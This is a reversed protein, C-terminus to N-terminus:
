AVVSAPPAAPAGALAATQPSNTAPVTTPGWPSVGDTGQAVGPLWASDDFDPAIFGVPPEGRFYKWSADTVLSVDGGCVCSVLEVSAIVGAPGGPPVNRAFVAIVVRATPPFNVVYRRAVTFSQGSGVLMGNIYLTFENDAAIVIKAQSALEGSPMVVTKRFARASIPANGRPAALENTWIWNANQLSPVASGSGANEPPLTLANEPQSWPATNPYSGEVFAAPWQSDDFAVQEFGAPTGQVAHWQGDTVITETFGDSYRIQIAALVGAANGPLNPDYNQASVAFVNCENVLPVCYRHANKFNDGTGVKLGNVYLTFANDVTILINASVPVRGNAPTFDRRFTSNGPPYTVGDAARGPTWIWNAGTFDLGAVCTTCAAVLFYFIALYHKFM